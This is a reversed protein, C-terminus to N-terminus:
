HALVNGTVIATPSATNPDGMQTDYVVNGSQNTIKIRITNASESGTVLFNYTGNGNITGTGTLTGMGNAIVLSSVTTANFHFNATNFDMSFQRNGTPVTGQYKYSLGFMVRGTASPNQVLSGVPSTYVSGASFLGQATPNYASIYQFTQTNSGGDKDTVTLTVQYVGATTYIHSDSVLGSGNSETVTGTSSNGDGWNWSATHTDLVGPDTFNASLVTANNIQVPNISAGIVGITPAVNNVTVTATNSGTAGQNDTIQVNVTYTGNDQYVHNLSFTNDANLALSQVGSGDGYDVTGTWSTSDTDAFSSIVSYASGENIASNSFSNIVPAQNSGTQLNGWTVFDNLPHNINGDYYIRTPSGGTAPVTFLGNTTSENFSLNYAGSFAITSGDPSWGLTYSGSVGWANFLPTSDTGDANVTNISSVGPNAGFNNYWYAIKSGDPSWVPASSIYDIGLNTINSGDANMIYLTFVGTGDNRIFAIKNGTPSWAPRSGIVGTDVVNSGDANMIYLETDNLSYIIKTGDPSWSPYTRSGCSSQSLTLNQISTGDVNMSYIDYRTNQKICSSDPTNAYYIIKSGDPSIQPAFANTDILTADSGDPNMTILPNYPPENNYSVGSGALIIKSSTTALASHTIGVFIVLVFLFVLFKKIM